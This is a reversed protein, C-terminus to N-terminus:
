KIEGEQFIWLGNLSATPTVCNSKTLERRTVDNVPLRVVVGKVIPEGTADMVAYAGNVTGQGLPTIVKSNVVIM